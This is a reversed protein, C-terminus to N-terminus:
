LDSGKRIVVRSTGYKTVFDELNGKIEITLNLEKNIPLEEPLSYKIYSLGNGCLGKFAGVFTTEKLLLQKSKDNFKVTFSINDKKIKWIDIENNAFIISVNYNGVYKHTITFEYNRKQKTIVEEAIPSWLDKPECFLLSLKGFAPFILGKQAPKILIGLIIPTILIFTLISALIKKKTGKSKITAIILMILTAIILLVFLVM